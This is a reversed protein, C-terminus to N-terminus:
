RFRQYEIGTDHNIIQNYCYNEMLKRASFDNIDLFNTILEIISSLIIFNEHKKNYIIPNYGGYVFYYLEPIKESRILKMSSFHDNIFRIGIQNITM